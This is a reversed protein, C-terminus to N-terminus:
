KSVVPISNTIVANNITINILWHSSAFSWRGAKVPRPHERTQRNTNPLPFKIKGAMARIMSHKEISLFFFSFPATEHCGYLLNKCNNCHYRPSHKCPKQRKNDKRFPLLRRYVYGIQSCHKRIRHNPKQYDITQLVSKGSCIKRQRFQNRNRKNNYEMFPSFIRQEADSAPRNQIHKQYLNTKTLM